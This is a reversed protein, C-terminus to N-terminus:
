VDDTEELREYGLLGAIPEIVKNRVRLPGGSATLERLHRRYVEWRERLKKGEEGTTKPLLKRTALEKELEFRVFPEPLAPGLFQCDSLDFAM